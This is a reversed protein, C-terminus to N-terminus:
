EAYYEILSNRDTWGKTGEIPADRRPLTWIGFTLHTEDSGLARYVIGTMYYIRIGHITRREAVEFEVVPKAISEEIGADRGPFIVRADMARTRLRQLFEAREPQLDADIKESNGVGDHIFVDSCFSFTSVLNQGLNEAKIKITFQVSQGSTKPPHVLALSIAAWPRKEANFHERTVAIAKEAVDVADRNAKLTQAVFIIGATGVFLGMVGAFASWFAWRSMDWQAQLDQESRWEQRKPNKERPPTEIAGIPPIRAHGVYDFTRDCNQGPSRYGCEAQYKQNELAATGSLM